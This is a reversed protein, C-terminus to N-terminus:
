RRRPHRRDTSQKTPLARSGFPSRSTSSRFSRSSSRANDPRGFRTHSRTITPRSSGTASHSTGFRSSGSRGREASPRTGRSQSSRHASSDRQGHSSRNPSPTRMFSQRHSSQPQQISPRGSRHGSAAGSRHHPPSTRQLSHGAPPTYSRGSSARGSHRFQTVGAPRRATTSRHVVTPRRITTSHYVAPSRRVYSHGSRIGISRGVHHQRYCVYGSRRVTVGRHYRPVWYSGVGVAISVHSSRSPTDYVVYGDREYYGAFKARTRRMALPYDGADAYVAGVAELRDVPLRSADSVAFVLRDKFEVDDDDYDTPSDLPLVFQVPQAADNAVVLGDHEITVVFELPGFRRYHEVEIEYDIEFLWGTADREVRVNLEDIDIDDGAGVFGVVGLVSIIAALRTPFGKRM